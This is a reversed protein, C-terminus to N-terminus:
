RLLRIRTGRFASSGSNAPCNNQLNATGKFSLKNGVIQLCAANLDFNGLLELDTTPLYLAGRMNFTGGGNFKVNINSARRDRYLVVGHHSGTEPATLSVKAGGNLKIDGAQGNPGTMVITVGTGSVEAQSGFDVDGGNVYYIGPQLKVAGKIDIGSYCGPSYTIEPDNSKQTMAGLPTSCFNPPPDPIRELPDTQQVSHSIIQTGATYRSSAPITGMAMVPNATVQSSGGATVAEAGRSNTAMGCGLTVNANGNIDIGTETGGYLSVVCFTGTGDVRAAAEAVLLPDTRTFFSMFPAARVTELRVVVVSPDGAYRGAAPNEDVAPDGTIELTAHHTLDRVVATEADADQSMAYAAALAGSDAARQLQRKAISLQLTDVALGASGLLMPLAAAVILAVNGKEDRRLAKILRLNRM